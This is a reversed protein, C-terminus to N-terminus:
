AVPRPTKVPEARIRSLFSGALPDLGAREVPCSPGASVVGYIGATMSSPPKTPTPPQVVVAVRWQQIADCLPEGTPSSCASRISTLEVTGVRVAAFNAATTGRPPLFTLPVRQVVTSNSVRVVRWTPGRLSPARLLVALRDGLVICVTEGNQRNGISANFGPGADHPDICSSVRHKELGAAASPHGAGFVFGATALLVALTRTPGSKMPRM